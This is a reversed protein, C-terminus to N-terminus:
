WMKVMSLTISYDDEKNGDHKHDDTYQSLGVFVGTKISLSQNIIAYVGPLIGSHASFDGWFELGIKFVAIGSQGLQFLVATGWETRDVEGDRAYTFNITANHGKGFSEGVILTFGFYHNRGIFDESRETPARYFLDLGLEIPVDQQEPMGFVLDFAVSDIMLSPSENSGAKKSRTLYHKGYKGFICGFSLMMWDTFAYGLSPQFEWRDSKDSGQDHVSYNFDLATFISKSAFAPGNKMKCFVSEYFPYAAVPLLLLIATLAAGALLTNKKMKM